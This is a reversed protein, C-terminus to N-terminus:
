GIKFFNVIYYVFSRVAVVPFRQRLVFDGLPVSLCLETDKNVPSHEADWGESVFPVRPIHVYLVTVFILVMNFRVTLMGFEAVLVKDGHEPRFFKVGVFPRLKKRFCSCFVDDGDSLVVVTKLHVFAFNGM